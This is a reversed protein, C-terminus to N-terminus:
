PGAPPTRRIRIRTRHHAHFPIALTPRRPAPICTTHTKPPSSPPKHHLSPPPASPLPSQSLLTPRSSTRSLVSEATASRRKLQPMSARAPASLLALSEAGDSADRAQHKFVVFTRSASEGPARARRIRPRAHHRRAYGACHLTQRKKWANYQASISLCRAM